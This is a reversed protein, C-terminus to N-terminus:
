EYKEEKLDKIIEGFLKSYKYSMAEAYIEPNLYEPKIITKLKKYDTILSSGLLATLAIRLSNITPDLEKGNILGPSHPFHKKVILQIALNKIKNVIDIADQPQVYCFPNDNEEMGLKNAENNM